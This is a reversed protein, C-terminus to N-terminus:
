LCPFGSSCNPFSAPPIHLFNLPFERCFLRLIWVWCFGVSLPPLSRASRPFIRPKILTRLGLILEQVLLFSSIELRRDTKLPPLHRHSLPPQDPLCLM